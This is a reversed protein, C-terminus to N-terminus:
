KKNYTNWSSFKSRATALPFPMNLAQERDSVEMKLLTLEDKTDNKIFVVYTKGDKTGIWRKDKILFTDKKITYQLHMPGKMEYQINDDTFVYTVKAKVEPGMEFDRTWAGFYPNSSKATNTKNKKDSGCSMMIISLLLVYLTKKLM